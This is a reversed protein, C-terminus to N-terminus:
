CQTIGATFDCILTDNPLLTKLCKRDNLATDKLSFRIM